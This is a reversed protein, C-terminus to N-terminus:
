VYRKIKNTQVDDKSNEEKNQTNHNDLSRIQM